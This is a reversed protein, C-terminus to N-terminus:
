HSGAKLALSKIFNHIKVELEQKLEEEIIGNVPDFNEYFKPLVFEQQVEAGFAPFVRQAVELANRGGYGGPSTSMVFMPKSQFLKLEIRSVGDFLNKFSATWNRNHESISCVFADASKLVELFQHAQEPFHIKEQDVSFIPLPYDNLDLVQVEIDEIFSVAYQVLQKNISTKSNSGAFAVIKLKAM